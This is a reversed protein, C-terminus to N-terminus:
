FAPAALAIGPEAPRTAAPRTAAPGSEQQGQRQQGQRRIALICVDDARTGTGLMASQALQCTREATQARSRRMAQALNSFGVTIDRRRDEILGDTYLLLTAGPAVSERSATYDMDISAGLMAGSAGDLYGVHGDGSDLLPPPHGANAYTLDGTALDLVACFATAVADPLLQCVAANTCRLVEAPGPHDLTYARLMSHIRGMIAASRISHGVVDGIALAVRDHDLPFVDYWDGGVDVGGTAPLYRVAVDLGAIDPPTDPLLAHQLTEAVTRERAFAEVNAWGAAMRRALEQIVAVDTDTFRSRGEDRGLVAVGTPREGILLPMVVVSEPRVRQLIGTVERAARAEGPVMAGVDPVLQTSAQTLAARLPGDPLIDIARLEELIAAKDPDRHVVAAARLLGQDTLLLVACSDALIPVMLQALRDQLEEQSGTAAVLNGADLVLALQDQAADAAVLAAQERALLEAREQENRQLRGLLRQLNDALEALERRDRVLDPVDNIFNLVGVVRGAEDHVPQYVSDIYIHEPAAGKRRVWVGEGRAQRPEGTQLVQRLAEFRPPGAVEPLAERFPRGVVDRGGIVQRYGDSVFEFVLDPGAVYAV